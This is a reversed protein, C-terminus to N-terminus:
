AVAPAPSVVATRVHLLAVLGILVVVGAVITWGIAGLGFTTSLLGAVTPVIAGGLVAASVQFGIAHLAIPSGLRVPTLSMLTPFLPGESLGLLLLGAIAIGPEMSTFLLAAVLMGWSGFLVLRRDGITRSLGGLLLRGIAMSGWYLGVWVGAAGTGLGLREVLVTYAWQGAAFEVGTTFLFVAIQLWVLPQRMVVSVPASRPKAAEADEHHGATWIARTSVFLSTMMLTAAGVVVYGWRWSIGTALVSAMVIPGVMAGLGFFAHLLNMIRNSFNEAAYFNLGSDVAGSGLGILVALALVTGFAPALAYGLLGITVLATSLILVRGVGLLEIARGSILGSAIYGTGSSFLIAGLEERSRGFTERMSPWAVGLVADPLGISVFSILAILITLNTGILRRSM